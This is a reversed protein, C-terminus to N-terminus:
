KKLNNKERKLLYCCYAFKIKLESINILDSLKKWDINKKRGIFAFYGMILLKDKGRLLKIHVKTSFILGNFNRMDRTEFNHTLGDSLYNGIYIPDKHWKILYGDAAIQNWVTSETIFNENKYVKFPYKKLISTKYVEAMDGMLDYKRRQLNSAVVVKKGKGNGSLLKGEPTIRQGSVGAFRQYDSNGEIDQCWKKIKCVANSTLVDDSDLIFFYKGSALNVGKNIARQKGGNKVSYFKISYNHAKKIESKIMKATDDTSGDNIIIWEFDKCTQNDLTHFLKNVFNARNYISTFITLFM